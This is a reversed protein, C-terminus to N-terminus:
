CFNSAMNLKALTGAMATWLSRFMLKCAKVDLCSAYIWRAAYFVCILTRVRRDIMTTTFPSILCVVHTSSSEQFSIKKKEEANRKSDHIIFDENGQTTTDHM